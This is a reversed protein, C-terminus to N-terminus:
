ESSHERLVAAAAKSGERTADDLPRNGYRDRVDVRVGANLLWNIVEVKDECAALHLATRRDYDGTDLEIGKEQAKKLSELDGEAAAVCLDYAAEAHSTTAGHKKLLTVIDQHGNNVAEDLATQGWRDLANVWVVVKPQTTLLWEVATTKGEASSVHLATRGDYDSASLDTNKKALRQLESVDGVSAAKAVEHVSMTNNNQWTAPQGEETLLPSELSADEGEKSLLPSDPDTSESAAHKEYSDNQAAAARNEMEVPEETSPALLAIVDMHRYQRADEVPKRGWRDQSDKSSGHQILLSVVDPFGEAAALHLATRRDYDGANLDLNADVALIKEVTHLDGLSCAHLLDKQTKGKTSAKGKSSTKAGHKRLFAVCGSHRNNVADDLATNGYRDVADIDIRSTGLLYRLVHTHGESAAV